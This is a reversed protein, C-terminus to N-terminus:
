GLVRGLNVQVAKVNTYSIAFLLVFLNAMKEHLPLIFLFVVSTDLAYEGLERGVGSQKCGGFPVNPHLSSICNVWTTGAQLQHAVQIGRTIDKTFLAAALGYETGNAMGIVEQETEFKIVVAVPGFIEERVIRMEPRVNTFITPQIWYGLTGFREGGLHVTAGEKKGAEIHEMIRDFQNQSVQPGQYSDKAFPDGLKLAKAQATFRKLFEDYIGSQVYIRSGACCNQGHNWFIGHISWHVALDIDADNFVVNPSKGGLELTVNKLNSKAAAEMVKRGVLTSGTFSIKDIRMHEAIARGVTEGYGTVVNVVGPPFGAENILSCMRLASLPYARLAQTCRLQGHRTGSRPPFNWPIIQGVVGFPEHRTYALKTEDTEIVQGHNKDAWGAYYRITDVSMTLDTARADNFTKGNDLAELAALEDWNKQMLDALRYLLKGREAGPIRLGWSEDFARKAADVARNVDDTTGEAISTLVKGNTPNIVDITTRNAGASFKGNIFIGTPFNVKGKFTEYNFQYSFETTSM